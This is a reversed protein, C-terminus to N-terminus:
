EEATPEEPEAVEDVVGYAQLVKMKIEDTVESNELL